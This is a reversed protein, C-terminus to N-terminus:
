APANALSLSGRAQGPRGNGNPAAGLAFRLRIETGGGARNVVAFYDAVTAILALGVGLGPRSTRAGLGRGDDAILLWLEGDNAAATVHVQGPVDDGYAHVVANTLAESAALRVAEVREESAGAARAVRSLAERGRPVSEAVAPYSESLGTGSDM